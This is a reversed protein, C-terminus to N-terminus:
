GKSNPSQTDSITSPVAPLEAAHADWGATFADHLFGEMPHYGGMTMNKGHKENWWKRWAEAKTM